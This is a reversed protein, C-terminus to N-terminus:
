FNGVGSGQSGVGLGFHTEVFGDLNGTVLLRFRQLQARRHTQRSEPLLLSLQFLSVPHQGLDVVPEGFAKISFIQLLCLHQQFFQAM